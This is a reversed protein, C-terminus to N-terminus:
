GGLGAYYNGAITEAEREVRSPAPPAPPQDPAGALGASPLVGSIASSARRAWDDIPTIDRIADFTLLLTVIQAAQSGLMRAGWRANVGAVVLKVIGRKRLTEATAAGGVVGDVIESVLMASFGGVAAKGLPIGLIEFQMARDLIGAQAELSGEEDGSNDEKSETLKNIAESVSDMKDGLGAFDDRHQNLVDDIAQPTEALKNLRELTANSETM